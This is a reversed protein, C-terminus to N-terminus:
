FENLYYFLIQRVHTIREFVRMKFYFKFINLAMYQSIPQDGEQGEQGYIKMKQDMGCLFCIMNPFRLQLRKLSVNKKTRFQMCFGDNEFVTATLSFEVTHILM